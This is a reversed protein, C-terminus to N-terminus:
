RPTVSTGGPARWGMWLDSVNTGTPGTRVLADAAALAPHADDAALHAPPDIGAQRMRGATHHDVTAGAADTPGDVGDTAFAGFAAPPGDDLAIAAALAASQNRGGTGAGTVQMTTEGHTITVVPSLTRCFARSAAIADGELPDDLVRCAFGRGRLHAAAAHAATAGDAIVTCPATTAPPADAEAERLARLVGPPIDDPTLRRRLVALADRATTGDAITPGSAIDSTRLRPIDSIALVVMRRDGAIRALGGNKLQSLHRRVTNLEAIPTGVRMLHRSTASVEAVDLGDVPLEALASGGGSVLLVVLHDPPTALLLDRVARGARMSREGPFPHDGVVLRIPGPVDEVHDSVAVGVVPSSGLAEVAGRTMAPAAKGIAIITAPTTGGVLGTLATRTLRAPEVADLARAFAGRLDPPPTGTPPM